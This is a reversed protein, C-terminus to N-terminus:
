RSSGASLSVTCLVSRGLCSSGLASWIRNGHRGLSNGSLRNVEGLPKRVSHVLSSNDALAVLSAKCLSHFLSCVALVDSHANDAAGNSLSATGSVVVVAIGLKKVLVPHFFERLAINIKHIRAYAACIGIQAHVSNVSLKKVALGICDDHFKGYVVGVLKHVLIGVVAKYSLHKVAVTLRRYHQQEGSLLVSGAQPLSVLLYARCIVQRHQAVSRHYIGLDRRASKVPLVNGGVIDVGIVLAM